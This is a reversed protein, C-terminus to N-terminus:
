PVSCSRTATDSEMGYVFIPDCLFVTIGSSGDGFQTPTGVIAMSRSVALSYGFNVDGAGPFELTQRWPWGIFAPLVLREFVYANGENPNSGVARRDAGAVIRAGTVGVSIGFRDGAEAEPHRILSEFAYLSEGVPRSYVFAGGGATGDIVRGPAGLVLYGNVELSARDIAVSTGMGDAIGPTTNAFQQQLDWGSSINARQYLYGRGALGFGGTNVYSPAGVLLSRFGTLPSAGTTSALAIAQGFRSGEPSEPGFLIDEWVVASGDFRGTAVAGREVGAVSSRALPAGIAVINGSLAVASGTGLQNDAESIIAPFLKYFTAPLVPTQLEVLYAKSRGDSCGPCGILVRSGSVSVAAGFRAGAQASEGDLVGLRLSQQQAWRGNLWRYIAVSGADTVTDDDYGPRGVAMWEGDRSISYGSQDGANGVALGPTRYAYIPPSQAAAISSVGLCVAIMVTRSVFGFGRM